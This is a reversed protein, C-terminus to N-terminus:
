KNFEKAVEEPTALRVAKRTLWLEAQKETLINYGSRLKGVGTWSINKSSFVAVTKPEPEAVKPAVRPKRDAGTSGIAGNVIGVSPKKPKAPASAKPSSVINADEEVAVPVSTQIGLDEAVEEVATKKEEVVALVEEVVAEVEELKEAPILSEGDVLTVPLDEQSINEESM